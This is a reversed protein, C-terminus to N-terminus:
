EDERGYHRNLTDIKNEVRDLREILDALDHSLGDQQSDADDGYLTRGHRKESQELSRIRKEHNWIIRGILVLLLSVIPALIPAIATLITWIDVM